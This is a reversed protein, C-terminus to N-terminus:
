RRLWATILALDSQQRDRDPEEDGPVSLSPPELPEPAGFVDSLWLTRESGWYRLMTVAGDGVDCVRGETALFGAWSLHVGDHDAAVAAWDPLLHRGARTDAATQGPVGLLERLEEVHQNPGPLEWGEHPTTAEEAYTQVLRAWDDASHIEWVRAKEDVPLRWRTIPRDDLEWVSALSDQVEVPPATVTWLGSWTFEGNAYVVDFDEFLPRPRIRETLWCEQDAAAVSARFAGAFRGAVAEAIPRRAQRLRFSAALSHPAGAVWPGALSEAAEVAERVIEGFTSSAVWQAARDVAERSSDVPALFWPVDPRQAAELRALLAVGAPADLLEEVLM